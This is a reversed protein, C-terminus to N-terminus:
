ITHVPTSMYLLSDQLVHVSCMHLSYRWNIPRAMSHLYVAFGCVVIYM